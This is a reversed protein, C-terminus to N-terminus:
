RCAIGRQPLTQEAAWFSVLAAAPAAGHQSLACPVAARPPAATLSAPGTNSTTQPSVGLNLARSASLPRPKETTVHPRARCRVDVACWTRCYSYVQCDGHQVEESPEIHQPKSMTRNTACQRHVTRKCGQRQWSTNANCHNVVKM